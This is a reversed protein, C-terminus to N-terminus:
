GGAIILLNDVRGVGAIAEVIAEVRERSRADHVTGRLTVHDRDVGVVVHSTAVDPIVMLTDKIRLYLEREAPPMPHLHESAARELERTPRRSSDPDPVTNRTIEDYSRPTTPAM